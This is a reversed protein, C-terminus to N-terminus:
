RKTRNREQSIPIEHEPLSVVHEDAAWLFARVASGGDRRSFPPDALLNVFRSESVAAWAVVAIVRVEEVPLFHATPFFVLHFQFNGPRGRARRLLPVLLMVLAAWCYACFVVSACVIALIMLWRIFGKATM